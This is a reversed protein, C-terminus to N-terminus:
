SRCREVNRYPDDAFLSLCCCLWFCCLLVSLLTGAQLPVGSLLRSIAALLPHEAPRVAAEISQMLQEQADDPLESTASMKAAFVRVADEDVGCELMNFVYTGLQGFVVNRFREIAEQQEDPPLRSFVIGSELRRKESAIQEFFLEEWLRVDRLQKEERLHFQLYEKQAGVRRFFTASMNVLNKAVFFDSEKECVRFCERLLRVLQLFPASSLEKQTARRQNLWLVFQKRQEADAFLRALGIEEDAPLEQGGFLVELRDFM